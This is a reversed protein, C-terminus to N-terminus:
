MHSKMAVSYLQNLSHLRQHALPLDAQDPSCLLSLRVAASLGQAVRLDAANEYKHPIRGDCDLFNVYDLTVPSPQFLNRIVSDFIGLRKFLQKQSFPPQITFRVM